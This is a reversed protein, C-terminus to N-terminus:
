PRNGSLQAEHSDRRTGDEITAVTGVMHTRGNVINTKDRILALVFPVGALMM